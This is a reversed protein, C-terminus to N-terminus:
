NHKGSRCNVTAITPPLRLRNALIRIGSEPNPEKAACSAGRPKWPSFSELRSGHVKLWERAKAHSPAHIAVINWFKPTHNPELLHALEHAILYDIVSMPAQIIRWNFLLQDGPTCSAWRVRLERVGIRRYGVGMSAAIEAVRAPLEERARAVFWDRFLEAADMRSARSLVFRSREFRLNIFDEGVIELPYHRGRYLFSEGSVFEKRVPDTPYKHPDRAKRWLWFRKEEVLARVREEPVGHPARVVIARNREVTLRVTKRDSYVLTYTPNM